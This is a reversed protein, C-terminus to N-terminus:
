KVYFFTDDRLCSQVRMDFSIFSNVNAQAGIKSTLLLQSHYWLSNFTYLFILCCLHIVRIQNSKPNPKLNFSTWNVWHPKILATNRRFVEYLESKLVSSFVAPTYSDFSARISWKSMEGRSVRKWRPTNESRRKKRVRFSSTATILSVGGDIAADQISVLNFSHTSDM